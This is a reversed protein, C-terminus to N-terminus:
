DKHKSLLITLLKDKLEVPMKDLLDSIDMKKDFFDKKFDDLSYEKEIKRDFHREERFRSQFEENEKKRRALFEQYSKEIDAFDDDDDEEDDEEDEDGFINGADFHTMKNSMPFDQKAMPKSSGRRVMNMAETVKKPPTIDKLEFDEFIPKVEEVEEIPPQVIQQQINIPKNIVKKNKKENNVKKEIHTKKSFVEKIKMM